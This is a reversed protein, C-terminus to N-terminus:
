TNEFGQSDKWQQFFEADKPNQNWPKRETLRAINDKLFRSPNRELRPVNQLFLTCVDQLFFPFDDKGGEKKYLKYAALEYKM